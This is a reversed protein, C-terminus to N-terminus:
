IKNLKRIWFFIIKKTSCKWYFEDSVSKRNILFLFRSVCTCTSHQDVRGKKMMECVFNLNVQHQHQHHHYKSRARQTYTTYQTTKSLFLISFHKSQIFPLKIEHYYVKFRAIISWLIHLKFFGFVFFSNGRHTTVKLQKALLKDRKKEDRQKSRPTNASCFMCSWNPFISLCFKNSTWLHNVIIKKNTENNEIPNLLATSRRQM